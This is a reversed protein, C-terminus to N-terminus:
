RLLNLLDVCFWNVLLSWFLGYWGFCGFYVSPFHLRLGSLAFLWYSPSGFFFFFCAVVYFPFSLSYIVPCLSPWVHAFLLSLLGCPHLQFIRVSFSCTNICVQYISFLHISNANLHLATGFHPFNLVHHCYFKVSILARFTPNCGKFNTIQRLDWFKLSILCTWILPPHLRTPLVEALVTYVPPRVRLQALARICDKPLGGLSLRM